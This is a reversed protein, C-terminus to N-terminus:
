SAMTGPREDELSENDDSLVKNGGSKKGKM